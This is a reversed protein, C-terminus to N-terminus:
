FCILCVRHDDDACFHREIRQGYFFVASKVIMIVAALFLTAVVYIVSAESVFVTFHYIGNDWVTQSQSGTQPDRFGGSLITRIYYRKVYREEKEKNGCAPDSRKGRGSHNCTTDIDWGKEKLDMYWM